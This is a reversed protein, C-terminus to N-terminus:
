FEDLCDLYYITDNLTIYERGDMEADYWIRFNGLKGNVDDHLIVYTQEYEFFLSDQDFTELHEITNTM